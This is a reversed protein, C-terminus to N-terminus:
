GSGEWVVAGASRDATLRLAVVDGIRFDRIAGRPLSQVVELEFPEEGPAASVELRFQLMPRLDFPGGLPRLATIRGEAPSGHALIESTLVPRPGGSTRWVVLPVVVAAAAFPLVVFLM